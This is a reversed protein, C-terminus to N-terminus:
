MNGNPVRALPRKISSRRWAAFRGFGFAADAPSAFVTTAYELFRSEPLCLYLWPHPGTGQAPIRRHYEAFTMVRRTPSVFNLGELLTAETPVDSADYFVGAELSYIHGGDPRPAIRGDLHNFRGDKVLFTFDATATQLDPYSLVFFLVRTRAPVL